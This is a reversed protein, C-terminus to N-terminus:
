RPARGYAAAATKAARERNTKWLDCVATMEVNHRGKLDAVISALERGRSGVGVHGLSIRENAGPVRSYSIASTGLAMAGGLLLSRRSLQPTAPPVSPTGM